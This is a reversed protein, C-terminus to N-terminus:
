QPQVMPRYGCHGLFCKTDQPTVEELARGMAEIM